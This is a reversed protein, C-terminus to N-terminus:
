DMPPDTSPPSPTLRPAWMFQEPGAIDRKGKLDARAPSAAGKVGVLALRIDSIEARPDVVIRYHGALSSGCGSNTAPRTITEDPRPQRRLM